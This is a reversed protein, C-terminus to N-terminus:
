KQKRGREHALGVSVSLIWSFRTHEVVGVSGFVSDYGFMGLM